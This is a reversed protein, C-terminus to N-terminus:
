LISGYLVHIIVLLLCLRSETDKTAYILPDDHMNGRYATMITKSIWYLCVVCVGWLVQPSRYLQTVAPSNIYLALVLISVYGSGIAIMTVIPLDDAHYGRGTVKLSGRKSNDVLEALRKVSALSLFFFMSFALLWVSLPIQTALSGAIIRLTYLGALIFIDMIILKKFYVSYITTLFYYAIILLLFNFGVFTAVLFGLSIFFIAIRTGISIPIKGSAFPRKKKRPHARDATLDLLDNVVYVSSAVLCFSIFALTSLSVTHFNFQHSAILPLFILM